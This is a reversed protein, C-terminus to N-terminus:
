LRESVWRIAEELGLKKALKMAKAETGLKDILWSFKAAQEDVTEVPPVPPHANSRLAMVADWDPGGDLAFESVEKEEESIQLADLADISTYPPVETVPETVVQAATVSKHRETILTVEEDTLRMVTTKAM